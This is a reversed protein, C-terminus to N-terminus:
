LLISEPDELDWVETNRLELFLSGELYNPLSTFSLLKQEYYNELM